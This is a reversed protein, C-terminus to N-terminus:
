KEVPDAPDSVWDAYSGSYTHVHTFGDEDLDITAERAMVGYQCYCIIDDEPKIGLDEVQEALSEDCDADMENTKMLDVNLAGPIHGQEYLSHDRVDIVPMSSLHDRVYRADVNQIEKM